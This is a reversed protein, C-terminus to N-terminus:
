AVVGAKAHKRLRKRQNASTGGWIGDTEGNRLAYALCADRVPCTACIAKAADSVAWDGTTPFFLEPDVGLCAGERMWPEPAIAFATPQDTWTKDVANM